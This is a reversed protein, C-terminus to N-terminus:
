FVGTSDSDTFAARTPRTFDDEDYTGAVSTDYRDSLPEPAAVTTSYQEPAGMDDDLGHTRRYEEAIQRLEADIEKESKEAGIKDFREADKAVNWTLIRLQQAIGQFAVGYLFLKLWMGWGGKSTDIMSAGWLAAAAKLGGSWQIYFPAGKRNKEFWSPNTKFQKAFIKQDSIWQNSMVAGLVMMGVEGGTWAIQTLQKQLDM